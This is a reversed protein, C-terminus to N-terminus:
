RLLWGLTRGIAIAALAAQIWPGEVLVALILLMLIVSLRANQGTERVEKRLDLTPTTTDM